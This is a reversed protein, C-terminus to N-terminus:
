GSHEGHVFTHPGPRLLGAVTSVKFLRMPGHAHVHAPLVAGEAQSATSGALPRIHLRSPPLGMGVEVPDDVEHSCVPLGLHESLDDVKALDGAFSLVDGATVVSLGSMADVAM